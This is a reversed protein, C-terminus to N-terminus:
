DFVQETKLPFLCNTSFFYIKMLKMKDNLERDNHKYIRNNFVHEYLICVLQIKWNVFTVPLQLFIQAKLLLCTMIGSATM